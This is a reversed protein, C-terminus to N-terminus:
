LKIIIIPAMEDKCMIKIATKISFQGKMDYHWAAFDDRVPTALITDADLAM